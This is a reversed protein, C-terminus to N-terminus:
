ATPSWEFGGAGCVHDLWLEVMGDARVTTELLEPGSIGAEAYATSTLGEAYALSERRWYNWHAPEASTPWYGSYGPTGPQYIKLVAQGPTGRVRWIGYTAANGKNHRLEELELVPLGVRDPVHHVAVSEGEGIELM